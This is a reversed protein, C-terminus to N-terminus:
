IKIYTRFTRPEVIKNSYKEKVLLYSQTNLTPLEIYDCNNASAITFAEDILALFIQKQLMPICSNINEVIFINYAEKSNNDEAIKIVEDVLALFIQKQLIPICSNINEVIFVKCTENQNYHQPLDFNESNIQQFTYILCGVYYGFENKAALVGSIKSNELSVLDMYSKIRKSNWNPFEQQLIPMLPDINKNIYSGIILNGWHSNIRVSSM